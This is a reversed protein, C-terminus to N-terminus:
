KSRNAPTSWANMNMISVITKTDPASYAAPMPDEKAVPQLKYSNKIFIINYFFIM